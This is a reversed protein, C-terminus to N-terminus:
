DVDEMLFKIQEDTLNDFENSEKNEIKKMYIKECKKHLYLRSTQYLNFHNIIKSRCLRCVEKICINCKRCLYTRNVSFKLSLKVCKYCGHGYYEIYKLANIQRKDFNYKKFRDYHKIKNTVKLKYKEINKNYHKLFRISKFNVNSYQKLYENIEDYIKPLKGQCILFPYDLYDFIIHIYVDNPIDLLSLM